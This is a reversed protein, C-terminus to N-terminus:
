WTAQGHGPYIRWDQAPATNFQGKDGKGCGKAATKGSGHAENGIALQRDKPPQVNFAKAAEDFEHRNGDKLRIWVGGMTAGEKARYAAQAEALSSFEVFCKDGGLDRIRLITFNYFLRFVDRQKPEANMGTVQLLNATIPVPTDAPMGEQKKAHPVSARAPRVMLQQEGVFLEDPKALLLRAADLSKFHVFGFQRFTGDADYKLEVTATPGFQECFAKVESETTDLPLAGIWVRETIDEDTWKDPDKGDKFGKGKNGGKGGKANRRSPDAPEVLVQNDGIINNGGHDIAAQAAEISDFTVFGFGRSDGTSAFVKIDIDTVGGFASFYDVLDQETIEPAFGCVYVTESVPVEERPKGGKGYPSSKASKGKGKGGKGDGWVPGYGEPMPPLTWGEAELTWFFSEIFSPEQIAPDQDRGFGKCVMRWRERGAKSGSLLDELRALIGAAFGGKGGGGGGKPAGKGGMAAM